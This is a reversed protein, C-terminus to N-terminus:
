KRHKMNSIKSTDDNYKKVKIYYISAGTELRKLIKEISSPEIFDDSDIQWIYEGSAINNGANRTFGLGSNQKNSHIIINKHHRNYEKIIQLSSDTSKDNVIIIEVFDTKAKKISHIISDLTQSIYKESNYLPIIISLKIKRKM